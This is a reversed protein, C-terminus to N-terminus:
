SAIVRRSVNFTLRIVGEFLGARLKKQNLWGMVLTEEWNCDLSSTALVDGTRKAVFFEHISELCTVFPDVSTNLLRNSDPDRDLSEFRKRIVVDVSPRYLLTSYSDLEIQADRRSQQHSTFVVDIRPSILDSFKEDWDVYSRFVDAGVLDIGSTEIESAVADAVQICIATM